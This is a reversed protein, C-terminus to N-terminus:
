NNNHVTETIKSSEMEMTTVTATGYSNNSAVGIKEVANLPLTEADFTYTWKHNPVQFDLNDHFYDSTKTKIAFFPQPGFTPVSSEISLTASGTDDKIIQIKFSCPDQYKIKLSKRMANAAESNVFEVEPFEKSVKIIHDYVEKVDSRMDRFDHDAFSMVVSKGERAENFARRVENEDLLYARTGINLCRAIWRRCSGKTQYDDHSPHYPEWTIPARRWDGSRGASFDKQQSDQLSVEMALTAYDFPIYQELFWHSDPRNVQFGPRNVSPFWERDIIRRCLVQFLKDTPGLWRTACLHAHKIMPHPHYHFHMGDQLSKNDKLIRRYEDFINHYGIDRRRPNVEYDIHDVCHWNYVWGNGFSDKYKDRFNKSLCDQLMLEVKDWTNNYNLLHPDLTIRVSDEIGGLDIQGKQLKKLTELSPELDIHYIHKLREFTAELSEHLPGESDICHVIYVKGM